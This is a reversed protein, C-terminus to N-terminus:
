FEDWNDAKAAAARNALTPIMKDIPANAPIRTQAAPPEARQQFFSTKPFSQRGRVFLL